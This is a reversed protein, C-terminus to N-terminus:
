RLPYIRRDKRPKNRVHCRPDIGDNGLDREGARALGDRAVAGHLLFQAADQLLETQRDRTFQEAPCIDTAM